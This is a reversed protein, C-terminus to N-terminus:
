AGTLSKGFTLQANVVRRVCPPQIRPTHGPRPVPNSSALFARFMPREALWDYVAHHVCFDSCLLSFSEDADPLSYGLWRQVRLARASRLQLSKEISSRELWM